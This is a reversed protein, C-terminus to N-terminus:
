FLVKKIQQLSQKGNSEVFDFLLKVNKL